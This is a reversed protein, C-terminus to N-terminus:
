WAASREDEIQRQEDGDSVFASSGYENRWHTFDAHGEPTFDAPLGRLFAAAANVAAFERRCVYIRGGRTRVEIGPSEVRKTYPGDEGHAEVYDTQVDAAAECTPFTRAFM